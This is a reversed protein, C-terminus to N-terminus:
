DTPRRKKMMVHYHHQSPFLTDDVEMEMSSPDIDWQFRDVGTSWFAPPVGGSWTLGDNGTSLACFTPDPIQEVAVIAGPKAIRIMESVWRGYLAEQRDQALQYLMQSKWDARQCIERQREIRLTDNWYQMESSSTDVDWPNPTPLIHSTFVLDFSHEPIFSLQTSAAACVAGRKGGGVSTAEQLITDLLRNASLAAAPSYDTGYLHLDRVGSADHLLLELTMLLNLGIGCSCEFISAGTKKLNPLYKSTKWSKMGDKVQDYTRNWNMYQLTRFTNKYQTLNQAIVNLLDSNNRYGLFIHDDYNDSLLTTTTTIGNYSSTAPTSASSTPCIYKPAGKYKRANPKTEDASHDNPLLIACISILLFLFLLRRMRGSPLVDPACCGSPPGNNRLPPSRVEGLDSLFGETSELYDYDHPQNSVTRWLKNSYLSPPVRRAASDEDDDEESEASGYSRPYSAHSRSAEEEGDEDSTAVITESNKRRSMLEM